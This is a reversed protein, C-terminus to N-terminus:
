AAAVVKRKRRWGLFGFAGLGGAFLPLAAPLPTAESIVLTDRENPKNFGSNESADCVRWM